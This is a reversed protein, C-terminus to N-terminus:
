PSTASEVIEDSVSTISLFQDGNVLPEAILLVCEVISGDPCSQATIKYFVENDTNAANANYGVDGLQVTYTLNKSFYHEEKQRLELLLAEGQLKRKDQIMSQFSPTIILLLISAIALVILIELLSFGLNLKNFARV